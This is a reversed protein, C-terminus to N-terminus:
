IEVRMVNMRAMKHTYAAIREPACNEHQVWSSILVIQQQVYFYYAKDTVNCALKPRLEAFIESLLWYNSNPLTAEFYGREERVFKLLITFITEKCLGVRVIRMLFKGKLLLEHQEVTNKHDYHTYFTTRSIKAIKCIETPRIDRRREALMEYLVTCIIQEKRKFRADNFNLTNTSIFTRVSEWSVRELAM